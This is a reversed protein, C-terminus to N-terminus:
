GELLWAALVRRQELTLNDYAPMTQSHTEGHARLRPDAAVFSQPDALYRALEEVQWHRGLDLLPPGQSKGTRDAGHCNACNQLDYIVDGTAGPPPPTRLTCAAAAGWM